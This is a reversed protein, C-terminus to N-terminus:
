DSEGFSNGSCIRSTQPLPAAAQATKRHQNDPALPRGVWIRADWANPVDEAKPQVVNLIQWSVTVRPNSGWLEV